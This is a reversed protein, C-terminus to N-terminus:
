LEPVRRGVLECRDDLSRLNLNRDQMMVWFSFAFPPHVICQGQCLSAIAASIAPQLGSGRGGSFFGLFLYNDDPVMSLGWRPGNPIDAEHLHREVYFWNEFTNSRGARCTHQNPGIAVGDRWPKCEAVRVDSSTTAPGLAANHHYTAIALCPAGEFARLVTKGQLDM